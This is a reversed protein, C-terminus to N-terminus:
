RVKRKRANKIKGLVIGLSALLVLSTGAGAPMAFDRDLFRNFEKIDATSTIYDEQSYDTFSFDIDLHGEGNGAGANIASSTSQVM